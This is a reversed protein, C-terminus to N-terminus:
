KTGWIGGPGAYRAHLMGSGINIHVLSYRVCVSSKDNNSCIAVFDTMSQTSKVGSQALYPHGFLVMKNWYLPAVSLGCDIWRLLKILRYACLSIYKLYRLVFVRTWSVSALLVTNLNWYGFYWMIERSMVPFIRDDFIYEFDSCLLCNNYPVSVALM